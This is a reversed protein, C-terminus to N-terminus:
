PTPFPVSAYASTGKEKARVGCVSGELRVGCYVVVIPVRCCGSM